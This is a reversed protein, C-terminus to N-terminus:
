NALPAATLVCPIHSDLFPLTPFGSNGGVGLEVWGLAPRTRSARPRPRGAWCTPLSRFSGPATGPGGPEAPVPSGSGSGMCWRLQPPRCRPRSGGELALPVGRGVFPPPLWSRSFDSTELAGSRKAGEERETIPPRHALQTSRLLRALEGLSIFRASEKAAAHDLDVQRRDRSGNCRQL